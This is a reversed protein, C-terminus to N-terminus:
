LFAMGVQIRVLRYNCHIDSKNNYLSFMLFVRDCISFKFCHLVRQLSHPTVSVYTLPRLLSEPGNTDYNNIHSICNLIQWHSYFHVFTYMYM